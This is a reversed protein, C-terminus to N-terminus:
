QSRSRPRRSSAAADSREAASVARAWPALALSARASRSSPASSLEQALARYRSSRRVSAIRRRRAFSRSALGLAALAVLGAGGGAPEPAFEVAGIDCRATLDGDGDVPRPEGRQDEVIPNGGGDECDAGPNGADIVPSGVRPYHTRTSGGYDGLALLLPDTSPLDGSGAGACTGDSDLNYGGSEVLLTDDCEGSAFSPIENWVISNRLQVAGGTHDFFPALQRNAFVTSNELTVSGGFLGVLSFGFSSPLLAHGSITSNRLRVAALGGIMIAYSHNGSQNAELTSNELEFSRVPRSAAAPSSPPM